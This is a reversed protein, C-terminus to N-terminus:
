WESFVPDTLINVGGIQVLFTAHGLWTVQLDTTPKAVLDHRMAESPASLSTSMESM